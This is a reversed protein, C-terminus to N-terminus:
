RAIGVVLCQLLGTCSCERGEFQQEVQTSSHSFHNTTEELEGQLTRINKKPEQKEQEHTLQKEAFEGRATEAEHRFPLV